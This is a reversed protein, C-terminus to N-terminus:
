THRVAWKVFRVIVVALVHGIVSGAMGICAGVVFVGLLTM